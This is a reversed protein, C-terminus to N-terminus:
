TPYFEKVLQFKTQREKVKDMQVIATNNISEVKFELLVFIVYYNM